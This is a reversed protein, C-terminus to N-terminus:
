RQRIKRKKRKDPGRRVPTTGAPEVRDVPREAAMSPRDTGLLSNLDPRRLCAMAVEGGAGGVTAQGWRRTSSRHASSRCLVLGTLLIWGAPFNRAVTAPRDCPTTSRADIGRWAPNRQVRAVFRPRRQFDPCPRGFIPGFSVSRRLRAWGPARCAPNRRLSPARSERHM